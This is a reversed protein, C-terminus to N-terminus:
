MAVHSADFRAACVDSCLYATHGDTSRAVATSVPLAMGCVPDIASEGGVEAATLRGDRMSMVRDAVAEIRDDHTVLILAKEDDRATRELMRLTAFGSNSDLNGTPEDALIVVPDNVLARAIAVRQQQGGSLESPLHDARDSLGLDRLLVTARARNSRRAFLTAIEVNAQASLASLLNANQFIFGIRSARLRGKASAKLGTTPTGGLEVTGEDPTRLLGAIQLLTTKGSGSPGRIVVIEGPDVILNVGQLAHVSSGGVGFRLSVDRLELVPTM